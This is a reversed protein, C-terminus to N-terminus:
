IHISVQTNDLETNVSNAVSVLATVLKVGTVSYPTYLVPVYVWWMIVSSVHLLAPTDSPESKPTLLVWWGPLSHTWCTSTMSSLTSASSWWVSLSSWLTPRFSTGPWPLWECVVLGLCRFWEGQIEQISPGDNHASVRWEGTLSSYGVCSLWPRLCLESNTVIGRCLERNTCPHCRFPGRDPVDGHHHCGQLWLLACVVPHAGGHCERCGAPLPGGM